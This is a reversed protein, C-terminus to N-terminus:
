LIFVGSITQVGFPFDIKKRVALYQSICPLPIAHNLVLPETPQAGVSGIDSVKWEAKLLSLVIRTESQHIELFDEVGFSSPWISRFKTTLM